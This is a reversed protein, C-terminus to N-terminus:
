QAPPAAAVGVLDNEYDNRFNVWFESGPHKQGNIPEISDGEVKLAPRGRVRM